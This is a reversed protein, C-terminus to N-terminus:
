SSSDVGSLPLIPSRGQEDRCGWPPSEDFSMDHLYIADHIVTQRM